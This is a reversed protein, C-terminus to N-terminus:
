LFFSVRENNEITVGLFGFIRLGCFQQCSRKDSTAKREVKQSKRWCKRSSPEFTWVQCNALEQCSRQCALATGTIVIYKEGEDTEINDDSSGAYDINNEFCAREEISFFLNVFSFLCIAHSPFIEIIKLYMGIPIKYSLEKVKNTKLNFEWISNSFLNRPSDPWPLWNPIGGAIYVVDDNGPIFTAAGGVLNNLVPLNKMRTWANGDFVEAVTGLGPTM